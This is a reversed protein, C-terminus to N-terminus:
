VREFRKKCKSCFYKCKKDKTQCAGKKICIKTKCKPCEFLDMTSSDYESFDFVKKNKYAQQELKVKGLITIKFETNKNVLLKYKKWEGSHWMGGKVTHLLEHVVTNKKDKEDIIFKNITVFFDCGYKNKIKAGYHTRGYYSFGGNFAFCISKSIPVGLNNLKGICEKVIETTKDDLNFVYGQM